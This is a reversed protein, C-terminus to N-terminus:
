GLPLQGLEAGRHDLHARQGLHCALEAQAGVDPEAAALLDGAAAVLGRDQSVREFGHDARHVDVAAQVLGPTQPGAQEVRDDRPRGPEARAQVPLGRQLLEGRDLHEAHGVVLDLLAARVVLLREAGRDPDTALREAGTLPAGLLRGLVASDSPRAGSFLVSFPLSFPLRRSSLPCGSRQPTGSSGSTSVTRRPRSSCTTPLVTSVTRTRCGRATRLCGAPGASNSDPRSPRVRSLARRRPLYRHSDTPSSARSACRPILPCSSMVSGSWGSEGCTLIRKVNLSPPGSRRKVSWRVNPWIHTTRSPASSGPGMAWMAGSGNSAAKSGAARLRRSRVRRVPTLRASSSWDSILPIPLM